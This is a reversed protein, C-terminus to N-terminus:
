KHGDHWCRRRRLELARETVAMLRAPNHGGLRVANCHLDDRIIQLERHAVPANLKPRSRVEWGRGSFVTGVDYIVGRRKVLAEL